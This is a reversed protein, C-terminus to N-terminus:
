NNKNIWKTTNPFRDPNYDVDTSLRNQVHNLIAQEYSGYPEQIHQNSAISETISSITSATATSSSAASSSSGGIRPARSQLVDRVGRVLMVNPEAAAPKSGSILKRRKSSM